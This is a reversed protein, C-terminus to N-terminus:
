NGGERRQPREDEDIKGNKNTDMADFRAGAAYSAEKATVKGDKDLDMRDFMAQARDPSVPRGSEEARKALFASVEASTLIGDSNADMEAFRTEAQKVVEDRTGGGMMMQAQAPFNAVGAILLALPLIAAKM